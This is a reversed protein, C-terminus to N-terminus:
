KKDEHYRKFKLKGPAPTASASERLAPVSAGPTFGLPAAAVVTPVQQISAAAVSVDPVFVTPTSTAPLPVAGVSSAPLPMNPAPTTTTTAIPSAFVRSLPAAPTNAILPLANPHNAAILAANTRSVASHSATAELQNAAPHNTFSRNAAPLNGAPCNAATRDAVPLDPVPRHAVSYNATSHHVSAQHSGQQRANQLNATMRNDASRRVAQGSAPEPHVNLKKEASPRGVTPPQSASVTPAVCTSKAKSPGAKPRATQPLTGGWRALLDDPLVAALDPAQKRLELKHQRMPSYRVELRKSPTTKVVEVIKKILAVFKRIGEQNVQEWARFEISVNCVKIDRPLFFGKTHRALAFYPIQRIWLRPLEKAITEKPDKNKSRTKMDLIMAQPIVRRGRLISLALPASDQPHSNISGKALSHALSEMDADQVPNNVVQESGNEVYSADGEFRILINLGGLKYEAVRQHTISTEAGSNWTTFAEPFTHGYGNVDPIVERPSNEKRTFFVTKGVLDVRFRFGQDCDM